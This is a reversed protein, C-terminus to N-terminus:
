DNTKASSEGETKEVAKEADNALDAVGAELSAINRKWWTEMDTAWGKATARAKDDFEIEPAKQFASAAVNLVLTDEDSSQSLDKLRVPVMEEGLGLFGGHSIMVYVEGDTGGSVAVDEVHGLTEDRLNVVEDGILGEMWVLNDGKDFARADALRERREKREQIEEQREAYNERMDKIESIVMECGDANGNEAFTMAANRLVREDRRLQTSVVTKDDRYSQELDRIEERCENIAAENEAQQSNASGAQAVGAGGLSVGIALVSASILNRNM